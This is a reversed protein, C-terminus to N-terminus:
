PNAPPGGECRLTVAFPLTLTQSRSFRSLYRYDLRVADDAVEDPRRSCDLRWRVVLSRATAPRSASAGSRTCTAPDASATSSDTTLLAGASLPAQPEAATRLGTLTVSFRGTNRLTFATDFPRGKRYAPIFVQKGGSGTVPQVDAGLGPGPAFDGSADLPAYAWCGSM